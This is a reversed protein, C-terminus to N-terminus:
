LATQNGFIEREVERICEVYYLHNDFSVDAPVAHDVGPLFGGLEVLPLLQRRVEARISEKDRALERKDIGGMLYLDKGYEKRLAVPDMGSAIEIPTTGNAGAELWVPILMSADGDSDVFINKINHKHLVDIFRKYHPSMFDRMMEPGIMPKEKYAMDENIIILDPKNIEPPLNSLKKDLTETLFASWFELMERVLKEKDYFWMCLNEFGVWDRLAWFLGSVVMCAPKTRSGLIKLDDRSWSCRASNILYRKKMEVFDKEDDVAFKLYSRTVFGSDLGAKFDKRTAGLVDIWVQYTETEELITEEFPPDMVSPNTVNDFGPIGFYDLPEVDSPFGETYWRERTAKRVPMGWIYVGKPDFNQVSNFLDIHNSSM